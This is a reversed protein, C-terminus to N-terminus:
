SISFKMERICAPVSQFLRRSGSATSLGEATERKADKQQRKTVKADRSPRTRHRVCSTDHRSADRSLRSWADSLAQATLLVHGKEWVGDEMDRASESVGHHTVVPLGGVGGPISEDQSLPIVSLAEARVRLVPTTGMGWCPTEPLGPNIGSARAGTRTAYFNSACSYVANPVAGQLVRVRPPALAPAPPHRRTYLLRAIASLRGCLTPSYSRGAVPVEPEVASVKPMM